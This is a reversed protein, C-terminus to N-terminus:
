YECSRHHYYSNQDKTARAQAQPFLVRQQDAPMDQKDTVAPRHHLFNQNAPVTGIQDRQSARGHYYQHHSEARAQQQAMFQHQRPFQEQRLNNQRDIQKRPGYTKRSFEDFSMQFFAEDRMPNEILKREMEARLEGPM